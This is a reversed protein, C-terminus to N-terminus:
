LHCSALHFLICFNLAYTCSCSWNSLHIQFWVPLAITVSFAFHLTLNKLFLSKGVWFPSPQIFVSFFRMFKKVLRQSQCLYLRVAGWSFFLFFYCFFFVLGPCTSLQSSLAFFFFNGVEDNHGGFIDWDKGGIFGMWGDMDMSGSARTDSQLMFDNMETRHTNPCVRGENTYSVRARTLTILFLDYFNM